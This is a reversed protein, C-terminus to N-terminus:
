SSALIRGTPFPPDRMRRDPTGTTSRSPLGRRGSPSPRMETAVEVARGCHDHHSQGTSAVGISVSLIPFKTSTGPRDEIEIYGRGSDEADYLKTALRTTLQIARDGRVFGYHAV